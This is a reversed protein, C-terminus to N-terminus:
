IDHMRYNVWLNSAKEWSLKKYMELIGLLEILFIQSPKRWNRSNGYTDAGKDIDINDIIEKGPGGHPLANGELAMCLYKDRVGVTYRM